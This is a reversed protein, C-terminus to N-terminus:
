KTIDGRASHKGKKPLSSNGPYCEVEEENLTLHKAWHM